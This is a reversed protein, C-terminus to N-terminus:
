FTQFVWPWPNDQIVFWLYRSADARIETFPLHIAIAKCFASENDINLENAIRLIWQDCSHRGEDTDAVLHGLCAIWLVVDKRMMWGTAVLMNEIRALTETFKSADRKICDPPIIAAIDPSEGTPDYFALASHWLWVRHAQQRLHMWLGDASMVTNRMTVSELNAVENYQQLAAANLQHHQVTSHRAFSWTRHVVSPPFQQLAEAVQTLYDLDEVLIQIRFELKSTISAARRASEEESLGKDISLLQRDRLPNLVPVGAESQATFYEYALAAQAIFPDLNQLGGLAIILDRNMKRYLSSRAPPPRYLEALILYSLDLIVRQSPLQATSFTERLSQIARISFYEPSNAPDPPAHNLLKIRQAVVALLSNLATKDKSQIAGRVISTCLRGDDSSVPSFGTIQHGTRRTNSPMWVSVFYQLISKEKVTIVGLQTAVSDPPALPHENSTSSTSVELESGGHDDDNGHQVESQKKKSSGSPLPFREGDRGRWGVLRSASTAIPQRTKRKAYRHVHANIQSANETRSRVKTASFSGSSNNIFLFNEYSM